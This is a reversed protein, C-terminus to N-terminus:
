EDICYFLFCRGAFSIGKAQPPEPKKPVAEPKKPVAVPKPPVVVPVEEEAEEAEIVEPVKFFNSGNVQSLKLSAFLCIAFCSLFFIFVQCVVLTDEEAM